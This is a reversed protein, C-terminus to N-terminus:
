SRAGHNTKRCGCMSGQKATPIPATYKTNLPMSPLENSSSPRPGHMQVNESWRFGGGGFRGTVPVGEDVEHLETKMWPVEDLPKAQRLRAFSPIRPGTMRGPAECASPATITGGPVLPHPGTKRAPPKLGSTLPRLDSTLLSCPAPLLSPQPRCVSPIRPAAPYGARALVLHRDSLANVIVPHYVRLTPKALTENPIRLPSVGTASYEPTQSESRCPAHNAVSAAALRSFPTDM